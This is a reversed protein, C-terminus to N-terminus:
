EGKFVKEYGQETLLQMTEVVKAKSDASKLEREAIAIFAGEQSLGMFARIGQWLKIYLLSPSVTSPIFYSYAVFRKEGVASVIELVMFDDYPWRKVLSWSKTNYLLNTTNILERGQM